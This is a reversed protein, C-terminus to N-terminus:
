IIKQSRHSYVSECLPCVMSAGEVKLTVVVLKEVCSPCKTFGSM